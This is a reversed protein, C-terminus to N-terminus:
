NVLLQFRCPLLRIFHAHLPETASLHSGMICEQLQKEREAAANVDANSVVAANSPACPEAVADLGRQERGSGDGHDAGDAGDGHGAGGDVADKAHHPSM